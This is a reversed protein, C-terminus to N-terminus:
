EWVQREAAVALEVKRKRREIQGHRWACEMAAFFQAWNWAGISLWTCFRRLTGFVGDTAVQLAVLLALILIIFLVILM